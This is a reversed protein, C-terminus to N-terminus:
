VAWFLGNALVGLGLIIISFAFMRPIMEKRFVAYTGFIATFAGSIAIGRAASGSSFVMLSFLLFVGMVLGAGISLDKLRNPKLRVIAGSAMLMAGIGAPLCVANCGTSGPDVALFVFFMGTIILFWALIRDFQRQDRLLQLGLVLSAAVFLYNLYLAM